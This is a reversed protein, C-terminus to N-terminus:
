GGCSRTEGRGSMRRKHKVSSAPLLGLARDDSLQVSWSCHSMIVTAPRRAIFPRRYVVPEAGNRIFYVAGETEESGLAHPDIAALPFSGSLIECRFHRLHIEAHM